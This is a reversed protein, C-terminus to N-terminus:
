LQKRRHKPLQEKNQILGNRTAEAIKHVVGELFLKALIGKLKWSYVSEKM